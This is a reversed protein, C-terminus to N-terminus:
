WFLASVTPVHEYAETSNVSYSISLISFNIPIEMQCCLGNNEKQSSYSSSFIVSMIGRIAQVSNVITRDCQQGLLTELWKGNEPSFWYIAFDPNNVTDCTGPFHSKGEM